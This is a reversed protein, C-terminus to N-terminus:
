PAQLAAREAEIEERLASEEPLSALARLLLKEAEEPLDLGAVLRAAERFLQAASEGRSSQGLVRYLDAARQKQGRKEHLKALALATEVPYDLQRRAIFIGIVKELTEVAEDERELAIQVLGLEELLRVDPRGEDILGLAADIVELAEEAHGKTRLYRGLFYLPRPDGALAETARELVEVAADFGEQADALRALELHAALRAESRDGPDLRDLFETLAKRGGQEDGSFLRARAVELWLYVPHSAEALLAELTASAEEPREDALALLADEFTPGYAEYEAAQAEEWSSAIVALKEEDSMTPMETAEEAQEADIRALLAQAHKVIAADTAIQTAGDLEVRALERDGAEIYREAEAIRARAIGDKCELMRAYLTAKTEESQDGAKELAREYALNAEGFEGAEFSRDAEERLEDFSRIGFMRRLFSM